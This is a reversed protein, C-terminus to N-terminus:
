TKQVLKKLEQKYVRKTVHPMLLAQLRSFFFTQGNKTEIKYHYYSNNCNVLTVRPLKKHNEPFICPEKEHMELFLYCYHEEDKLTYLSTKNPMELQLVTPNKTSIKFLDVVQDKLTAKYTMRPEEPETHDEETEEFSPIFVPEREMAIANSTIFLAILYPHLINM